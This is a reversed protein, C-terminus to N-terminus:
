PPAGDAVRNGGVGGEDRDRGSGRTSALAAGTLLLLPGWIAVDARLRGADASREGLGLSGFFLALVGIGLAVRLAPHRARRSIALGALALVLCAAPVAVRKHLEVLARRRVTEGAAPEVVLEGLAALTLERDGPSPIPIGMRAAVHERYSQNSIPMLWGTLLLTLLGALAGTRWLSRTDSRGGPLAGAILCGMPLAVALVPALVFWLLESWGPARRLQVEALLVGSVLATGLLVRAFTSRVGAGLWGAEDLWSRHLAGRLTGAGELALTQGFALSWRLRVLRARWPAGESRAQSWEAQM